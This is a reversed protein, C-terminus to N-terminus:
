CKKKKAKLLKMEWVLDTQLEDNVDLLMSSRKDLNLVMFNNYVGNLCFLLIMAQTIKKVNSISKDPTYMYSDDAYNALDCEQLFLFVDNIFILQPGVIYGQPVSKGM